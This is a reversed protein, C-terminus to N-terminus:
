ILKSTKSTKIKWVKKIFKLEEVFNKKIQYLFDVDEKETTFSILENILKGTERISDLYTNLNLPCDSEKLIIEYDTGYLENQYDVLAEFADEIETRNLIKQEVLKAVFLTSIIEMLLFNKEDM